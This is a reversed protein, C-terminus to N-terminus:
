AARFDEADALKAALEESDLYGDTPEGRVAPPVPCSTLIAGNLKPATVHCHYGRWDFERLGRVHAKVTSGNVRTHERVYHIIKRTKGGETVTKERDAFYAATHEPAIVFTARKNDKRVGVSWSSTRNHWWILLQRFTCLMFHQYDQQREAQDAKMATPMMWQRHIFSGRRSGNVIRHHNLHHVVQRLEHPVVIRRDPTVVIWAWLWFLRPAGTAKGNDNLQVCFGFRYPTGAVREVNLPLKPERIAFTFRAHVKDGEDYKSPFTMCSAMTVLNVDAPISPEKVMELLWPSAVFIGLRHLARIDHKPLWNGKLEPIRMSSFTDDLNELLEAFTESDPTEQTKKRRPKPPPEYKVVYLPKPEPPLEVPAPLEIQVM